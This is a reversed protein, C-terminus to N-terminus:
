KLTEDEKYGGSAKIYGILDAYLQNNLLTKENGVMIMRQRARTLAVNLKRDIQRNNEEFTNATLFDLQYRRTVTLSYVIVDRQSGQYREVTDISINRVAEIGYKELEQRIVAIQNRYPVIVGVTKEATFRSGYEAYVDAVLRAVVRAEALNSKAAAETDAESDAPEVNVFQLRAQMSPEQQHPLPVTELREEEYFKRSPWDAIDPHMRGHRSLTGIFDTRGARRETQLLREFLSKRCNDLGIATLLPHDVASEERAQAVVAPLQKHDGILIFRPQQDGSAPSRVVSLLGLLDPELIQSAEDVVIGSFTKQQFLFPRTQLTSTTGVIIEAQEILRKMAKLKPNDGVAESLLCPRFREDCSYESGIRLFKIGNDALMACIEDVARNTYACLLLSAPQGLARGRALEEEVLFHLAMSTKGTGPPGIILFYDLAQLAKEITEDYHQNYHRSLKRTTDRRPQRQALLLDRREKPSCAFRHIGALATTSAMDTPAHEVAYCLRDDIIHENQLSNSLRLTLQTASIDAVVARFLMSRRVDPTDKEEYAYLYVMDNRRFNSTPPQEGEAPQRLNLTVLDIGRSRESCAKRAVHLGTYINGTAMKESLPMNWLDAACGGSTDPKGTKALLQEKMVFTVMRGVYAKELESLSHLPQTLANLQPLLYDDYFKGGMNATNLVDPRLRPLVKEFGNRAIFYDTAVVQNRYALAERLLKQLPEVELLGDPLDYKSYLLLMETQSRPLDFNYALVAYYLLMQVYHREIHKGYAGAFAPREINYNKGAKQEVLLTMDTTMLDVRGQLGLKECVFSPELVARERNHRDFLDGVAAKIHEMQRVAEQKFAEADLDTCTSYDIARELFHRRLTEGVTVEGRTNNVVDDLAAGSFGGMLTHRTNAKPSMRRLIYLLPHHGFDEFCASLTSIDVLYDPEVIVALPVLRSGTRRCDLLNLQMGEHLLPPLYSFDVYDPSASLDVTFQEDLGNGDISVKIERDDWEDVICRMCRYDVRHTASERPMEVPLVSLLSSPVAESFVASVFLSLARCDCLREERSLSLADLSDRRAKQIARAVPRQLRCRRCLTDVQSSLNGFGHRTDRLGYQCTLSLVERMSAPGYKGEAVASVMEFLEKATINQQPEYAM